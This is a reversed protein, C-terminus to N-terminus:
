LSCDIAASDAAPTTEDKGYTQVPAGPQVAADGWNDAVDDGTPVLPAVTMPSRAQNDYEQFTYADQGKPTESVTLGHLNSRIDDASTSGGAQVAEHIAATSVFGGSSFLDPYIGYQSSYFDVFASNVENDYQNWHYRSTFPGLGAQEINEQTLDGLASQVTSGLATMGANTTLGGVASYDYKDTNNLFVSFLAPLTAVTFGTIIGDSGANMAKDLQGEWDESYGQPLATQGDITVGNEQLVRAYNSNVDQGFSYDAYYIWVSEIDTENAVYDGGSLADMAVNEAARFINPGCTDSDGTISVAAAPAVMYPVEQPSAVNNAVTRAAASSTGGLLLDVDFDNVFEEARSQATSSSGESDGVVIEYTVDGVEVTYNGTGADPGPVETADGGKYKLGAYMSWLTHNGYYALAGSHPNFSGIRVTGSAGGATTGGDGGSGDDGGEGGSGGDGSDGGGDGGCGALGLLGAAGLSGIVRRRTLGTSDM